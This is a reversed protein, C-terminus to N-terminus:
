QCNTYLWNETLIDLDGIDVDGDPIQEPQLDAGECNNLAACNTYLWYHALKALDALTVNGDKNLDAGGCKEQAARSGTWVISLPMALDYNPDNADLICVANVDNVGVPVKALYPDYFPGAIPSPSSPFRPLECNMNFGTVWLARTSPDETIGTVHQMEHVTITRVLNFDVTSFGYIIKSNPDMENYLSSTLYLVKTASSVCMGTPGRVHTKCPDCPDLDLRRVAENPEFKWLIDCANFAHANTVYVNCADDLEIERLTNRYQRQNDGTLPPDDYLKVLQYPPNYGPTLHLKAAAAYPLNEDYPDDGDPVVVVPVVYVNTDNANFAADFIPRGFSADGTDQIGVYVTANGKYRPENPCDIGGGNSPVISNGDDLRTIGDRSNIQYLDNAEGRVVRINRNELVPELLRLYHPSSNFVYHRDKMKTSQDETGRKGSILLDNLDSPNILNLQGNLHMFGGGGAFKAAGRMPVNICMNKRGELNITWDWSDSDYSDDYGDSSFAGDACTPDTKGAGSVVILFDGVDPEYSWDLDLCVGIYCYAGAGMGSTFVVGHEGEGTEMGKAGGYRLFHSQPEVLVLEIWTGNTLDLGWTSVFMEFNGYRGSGASGPRPVPPNPIQAVEKYHNADNLDGMEPIDSLYIVIRTNPDTTTFLYNLRIRIEDENCPAFESKARASIIQGNTDELNSMKMMGNPEPELGVVREVYIRNSCPDEPNIYNNNIIRSEFEENSDLNIDGLSFGFFAGKIISNSDGYINTFYFREFGYNLNSDAGLVLDKVYLVEHDGNGSSFRDVLAVRAGPALELRELTWSTTNFDPMTSEDIQCNPEGPCPPVTFDRGRVELKGEPTDNQGETITVYIRNNAITGTFTCPDVDMFRDGDTHIDLNTAQASNEVKLKGFYGDGQRSINVTANKLQGNDKVKLLGDCQITGKVNPDNPDNLDVVANSDIIMEGGLGIIISGTGRIQSYQNIYFEDVTSNSGGMGLNIVSTCESYM